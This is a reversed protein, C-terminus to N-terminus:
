GIDIRFFKAFIIIVFVIIVIIIFVQEETLDSDTAAHQLLTLTSM